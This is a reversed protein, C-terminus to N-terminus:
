DSKKFDNIKNKLELFISHEVDSWDNFKEQKFFKLSSYPNINNFEGWRWDPHLSLMAWTEKNLSASLHLISTDSTIVLDLNQIISAVEDLKYNSYDILNLSKFDDKDRDWIENQLCYFRVDLSLIKKLSKLPISRYPENAGNYGGSWVLGVNLKDTTIKDKWKSDKNKDTQILNEHDEFKEKFFFKILSGIAIKYDFQKNKCSALNEISLNKIETNFLDKVSNQVVFTVNKAIKTLPIIYKSFQISDGLGQENFVVIKKSSIKEGTWEKIDKFLDVTKSNRYEYYKWGDDFNGDYLSKLALYNYFEHDNSIRDKYTILLKDRDNKKNLNSYLILLTILFKSIDKNNELIEIAENIQNKLILYRAKNYKFDVFNEDIKEAKKLFLDSNDLDRLMIYSNLLNNIIIKDEGFNIGKLFFEKAIKPKNIKLYMCGINNFAQKKNIGDFDIYMNYYKISEDLNNNLELAYALKYNYETNLKNIEILKWAYILLYKFKKKKLYVLYLNKIADEFKPNIKLSKLLNEESLELNGKILYIVGKFNSIIHQSNIDNFLECLNLAKDLNKKKINEAIDKLNVM